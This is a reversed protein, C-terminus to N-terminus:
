VTYFYTFLAFCYFRFLFFRIQLLITCVQTATQFIEALPKDCKLTAVQSPNNRNIDYVAELCQISVLLLLIVFYLNGYSKRFLNHSCSIISFM